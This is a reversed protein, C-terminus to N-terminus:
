ATWGFERQLASRVAPTRQAFTNPLGADHEAMLLMTQVLQKSEYCRKLMKMAAAPNNVAYAVFVAQVEGPMAAKGSVFVRMPEAFRKVVERCEDLVVCDFEGGLLESLAQIWRLADERAQGDWTKGDSGGLFIDRLAKDTLAPESPNYASRLAYGQPAREDPVVFSITGDLPYMAPHMIDIFRQGDYELCKGLLRQLYGFKATAGLPGATMIGADYCQVMDVKGGEADCVVRVAKAWFDTGKLQTSARSGWNVWGSYNGYTTWKIM